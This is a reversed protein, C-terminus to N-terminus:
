ASLFAAQRALSHSIIEAFIKRALPVSLGHERAASEVRELVQREREADRIGAASGAKERGILGVLDLRRAILGVIGDDVEDLELRLRALIDADQDTM